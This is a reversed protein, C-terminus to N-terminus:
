ARLPRNTHAIAVVGQLLPLRRPVIMARRRLRQRSIILKTRQDPRRKVLVNMM